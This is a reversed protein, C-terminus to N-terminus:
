AAEESLVPEDAPKTTEVIHYAKELDKRCTEEDPRHKAFKALDADSLLDELASLISVKNIHQEIDRLLQFSTSEMALVSYREEFYRRVIESLESYYLKVQGAQYLEKNRLADLAELAIEHAPRPPPGIEIEESRKSRRRIFWRVLLFMGAAGIVILIWPAIEAFSYPLNRTRNPQLLHHPQQSTDALALISDPVLGHVIIKHSETEASDRLSGDESVWQVEFPGLEQVGRHYCTTEFSIDLHRGGNGASSLTSEPPAILEFLQLEEEWNPLILRGSMPAEVSFRLNLPDGIRLSDSVGEVEIALDARTISVTLLILLITTYFKQM